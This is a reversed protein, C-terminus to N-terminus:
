ARKRLKELEKESKGGQAEYHPKFNELSYVKPKEPNDITMYWSALGLTYFYKFLFELIYAIPYIIILLLGIISKIIKM